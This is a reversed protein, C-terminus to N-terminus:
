VVIGRWKVGEHILSTRPPLKGIIVGKDEDGLTRMSRVCM